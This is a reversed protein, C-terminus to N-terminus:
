EDGEGGIPNEQAVINITLTKPKNKAAALERASREIQVGTELMKILAPISRESVKEFDLRQLAKTRM